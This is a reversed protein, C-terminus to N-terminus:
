AIPFFRCFRFSQGKSVSYLLIYLDVFTLIIM